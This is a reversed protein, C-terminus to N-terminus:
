EVTGFWWKVMETKEAPGTLKRFDVRGMFPKRSFLLPMWLRDDPWMRDFPIPPLEGPHVGSSGACYESPLSFWEPRMEDSETPVGQFMDSSYIGIQHAYPYGESYFLLTGCFTLEADIGAEEKLERVAAGASSEGPEVKGGFGNYLGMGFGRKKFGLLVKGTKENWVFVNTFLKVAEFPMWDISDYTPHGGSIVERAQGQLGPPLSEPM